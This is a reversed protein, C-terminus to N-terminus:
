RSAPSKVQVLWGPVVWLLGYDWLGMVWLGYGVVWKAEAPGNGHQAERAEVLRGTELMGTGVQKLGLMPAIEPGAWAHGGGKSAKLIDIFHTGM